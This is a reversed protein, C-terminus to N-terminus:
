KGGQLIAPSFIGTGRLFTGPITPFLCRLRPYFDRLDSAKAPLDLQLRPLDLQLRPEGFRRIFLIIYYSREYHLYTGYIRSLVSLRIPPVLRHSKYRRSFDTWDGHFNRYPYEGGEGGGGM